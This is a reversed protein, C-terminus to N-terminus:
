GLPEVSWVPPAGRLNVEVFMQVACGPCWFRRLVFRTAGEYEESLAWREWTPVEDIVLHEKVNVEAPALDRGCRRCAMRRGQPGDVLVLHEGVRRGPPAESRAPAPERGGLRASRRQARAATTAAADLLWAGLPAPSVVVGYDRRAGTPSVLGEEVDFRVADPDRDLPDGM